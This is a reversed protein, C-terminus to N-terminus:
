TLIVFMIVEHSEGNREGTYVMCAHGALEDFAAADISSSYIVAYEGTVFDYEYEHGCYAKCDFDEDVRTRLIAESSVSYKLVWDIFDIAKM